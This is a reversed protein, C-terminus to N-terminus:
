GYHFVEVLQPRGTSALRAVDSAVFQAPNPLDTGPVVATRRGVIALAVVAALAALLIASSALAVSRKM